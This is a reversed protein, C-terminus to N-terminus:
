RTAPKGLRVEAVSASTTRLMTLDLVITTQNGSPPTCVPGSYDDGVTAPMHCNDHRTAAIVTGTCTAGHYDEGVTSPLQCRENKVVAPWNTDQIANLLEPFDEHGVRTSGSLDLAAREQLGIPTLRGSSLAANLSPFLFRVERTETHIVPDGYVPGAYAENATLTMSREVRTTTLDGIVELRGNGRMLIRKSRFTLLTHDTADPVYGAPLTGEPNLAHGWQEDAPYISLEFVSNRLDNTDLKVKGTVRAVGANVSDPDATSGQFFRTTSTTSDLSWTGGDAFALPSIIGFMIVSLIALTRRKARRVMHIILSKMETKQEKFQCGKDQKHV